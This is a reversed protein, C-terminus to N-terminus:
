GSLHIRTKDVCQPILPFVNQHCNNEKNKAIKNRFHIVLFHVLHSNRVRFFNNMENDRFGPVPETKTKRPLFIRFDDHGADEQIFTLANEFSLFSSFIKSARTQFAMGPM